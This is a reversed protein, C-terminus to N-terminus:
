RTAHRRLLGRLVPSAAQVDVSVDAGRLAHVVQDLQENATLSLDVFLVRKTGIRCAGGPAEGLWEHRVEFGSDTALRIAEELVDVSHM